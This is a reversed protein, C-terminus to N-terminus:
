VCQSFSKCNWVFFFFIQQKGIVNSSTSLPVIEYVDHQSSPSSELFIHEYKSQIASTVSEALYNLETVLVSLSFSLAPLIRNSGESEYNLSIFFSKFDSIKGLPYGAPCLCFWHRFLNYKISANSVSWIKIRTKSFFGLLSVLAHVVPQFNWINNWWEEHQSFLVPLHFKLVTLFTLPQISRMERLIFPVQCACSSLPHDELSSSLEEMKVTGWFFRGFRNIEM